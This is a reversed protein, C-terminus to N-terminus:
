QGVSTTVSNIWGTAVVAAGAAVSAATLVGRGTNVGPGFPFPFPAFCQNLWPQKGQLWQYVLEHLTPKKRCRPTAYAALKFGTREGYDQKGKWGDGAFM